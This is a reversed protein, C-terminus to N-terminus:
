DTINLICGLMYRNIFCDHKIPKSNIVVDLTDIIYVSGKRNLFGLWYRHNLYGYAPIRCFGRGMVTWGEGAVLELNGYAVILLLVHGSFSFDSNRKLICRRLLISIVVKPKQLWIWILMMTYRALQGPRDHTEENRSGWCYGHVNNQCRTHRSLLSDRQRGRWLHSWAGPAVHKM